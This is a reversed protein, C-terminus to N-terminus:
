KSSTEAAPRPAQDGLKQLYAILAVIEHDFSLPHGEVGTLEKTALGRIIREAQRQYESKYGEVQENTYPVGLTQMAILKQETFDVDVKQTFLWPYAPMTSKTDLLRPNLMHKYHWDDEYKGGVHGLDPGTRKSGWQFPHDYRSEELRSPGRVVKHDYRQTESLFPRVMQSHCNYCGERIYIDRGELELATYPAKDAATGKITDQAIIGPLLEVVGGAAVALFTLVTFALPRGELAAHWGEKGARMGRSLADVWFIVAVLVTFGVIALPLNDFGLMLAAILGIM